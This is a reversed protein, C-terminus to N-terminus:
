DPSRLRASPAAVGRALEQMDQNYIKAPLGDLGTASVPTLVPDTHALRHHNGGSLSPRAM